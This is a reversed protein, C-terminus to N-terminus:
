LSSIYRMPAGLSYMLWSRYHPLLSQDAWTTQASVNGEAYCDWIGSKLTKGQETWQSPGQKLMTKFRQHCVPIQSTDSWELHRKVCAICCPSEESAYSLTFNSSLAKQICIFALAYSWYIPSQGLHIVMVIQTLPLKLVVKCHYYIPVYEPM